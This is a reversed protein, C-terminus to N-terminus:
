SNDLPHRLDSWTSSRVVLPYLVEFGLRGRRPLGWGWPRPDTESAVVQNLLDDAECFIEGWDSENTWPPNPFRGDSQGDEVM